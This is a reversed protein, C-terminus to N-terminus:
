EVMGAGVMDMMTTGVGVAPPIGDRKMGMIIDVMGMGVM